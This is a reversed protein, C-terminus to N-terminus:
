IPAEGKGKSTSYRKPPLWCEGTSTNLLSNYNQLEQLLLHACTNKSQWTTNANKVCIYQKRGTIDLYLVRWFSSFLKKLISNQTDYM